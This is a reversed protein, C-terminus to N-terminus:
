FYCVLASQRQHNSEHLVRGSSNGRKRCCLGSSPIETMMGMDLMSLMSARRRIETSRPAIFSM